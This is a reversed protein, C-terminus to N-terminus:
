AVPEARRAVPDRRVETVPDDTIAITLCDRLLELLAADRQGEPLRLCAGVAAEVARAAPGGAFMRRRVRHKLGQRPALSRAERRSAVLSAHHLQALLLTPRSRMAATTCATAIHATLVAERDADGPGAAVLGPVLAVLRRRGSDSSADNVLRALLGLLPHTCSPADSWPLGAVRSVAEMLCTGDAAALHRGPSLTPHASEPSTTM